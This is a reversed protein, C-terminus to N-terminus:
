HALSSTFIYTYLPSSTFFVGGGGEPEWRKWMEAVYMKYNDGGKMEIAVTMVLATFVLWQFLSVYASSSVLREWTTAVSKQTRPDQFVEDDFGQKIPNDVLDEMEARKTKFWEDRFSTTFAREGYRDTHDLDAGHMLLTKICGELSNIVSNFHESTTERKSSLEKELIGLVREHIDIEADEEEEKSSKTSIMNTNKSELERILIQIDSIAEFTYQLPTQLWSDEADVSAGAGILRHVISCYGKKSALHLASQGLKNRHTANANYKLLVEILGVHGRDCAYHLAINGYHDEINIDIKSKMLIMASDLLEREHKACYHLVSMGEDCVANIDVTRTVRRRDTENIRLQVTLNSPDLLEAVCAEHGSQAAIMLATQGKKNQTNVASVGPTGDEAYVAYEDRLSYLLLIKVQEFHGSKCALMLANNGDVGQVNPDWLTSRNFSGGRRTGLTYSSLLMNM